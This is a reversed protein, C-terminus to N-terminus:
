FKLFHSPPDGRGNSADAPPSSHFNRWLAASPDCSYCCVVPQRMKAGRQTYSPYRSAQVLVSDESASSSRARAVSNCEDLRRLQQAGSAEPVVDYGDVSQTPAIKIEIVSM